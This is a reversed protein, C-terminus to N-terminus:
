APMRLLQGAALLSIAPDAPAAGAKGTALQGAYVLFLVVVLAVVVLIVAIWVWPSIRPGRREAEHGISGSMQDEAPPTEGPPVGGGPELGTIKENLPDPNSTM